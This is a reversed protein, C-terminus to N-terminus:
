ERGASVTQLAQKSLKHAPLFPNTAVRNATAANLMIAQGWKQGLKKGWAVRPFSTNGEPAREVM